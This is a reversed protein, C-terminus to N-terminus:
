KKKPGDKKKNKVSYWKEANVASNVTGRAANYLGISLKVEEVSVRGKKLQQRTERIDKLVDHAEEVLNLQM